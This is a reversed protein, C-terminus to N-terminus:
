RFFLTTRRDARVATAEAELMATLFELARGFSGNLEFPNHGGGEYIFLEVAGHAELADGLRQSQSSPIIADETGHHIQTQPLREAFLLPSRKILELRLDAVSLEGAQHAPLLVADVYDLGPLNAPDGLLAREILDQSFPALFDVPGFFDLVRAISPERISMLMAVSAGASLGVVAIRDADAQPFEALVVQLLALSDDVDGDLPSSMGESRYRGDAFSLQQGRYSPIAILFDAPTIGAVTALILLAGEVSTGEDGFHPYVVVPLSDDRQPSVIAGYHLEGDVLHSVITIEAEDGGGRTTEVRFGEVAIPRSAWASLVADTEAPTASAFLRDFDVGAIVRGTSSPGAPENSGCACLILLLGMALAAVTTVFERFTPTIASPPGPAGPRIRQTPGRYGEALISERPPM